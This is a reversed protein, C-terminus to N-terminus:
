SKILESQIILRKWTTGPPTCTIITLKNGPINQNLMSIDDPTTIWMKNIRYIYTAKEMSVYILDNKKLDQAHSFMTRYNNKNFAQPLDSHGFIIANGRLPPIASGWYQVLHKSLNYDTTSVVANKIKIRPISITYSRITQKNTKTVDYGLFWADKDEVALPDHANTKTSSMGEADDIIPSILRELVPEYKVKWYFVPIAYFLM